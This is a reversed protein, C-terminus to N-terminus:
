ESARLRKPKVYANWALYFSLGLYLAVFGPMLWRSPQGINKINFFLVGMMVAGIWVWARYAKYFGDHRYVEKLEEVM